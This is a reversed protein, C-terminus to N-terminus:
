ILASGPATSLSVHRKDNQWSLLAEDTLHPQPIHPYFTLINQIKLSLRYSKSDVVARFYSNIEQKEIM